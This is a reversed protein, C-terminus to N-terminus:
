ERADNADLQRRVQAPEHEGAYPLRFTAIKPAETRLLLEEPQSRAADRPEKLTIEALSLGKDPSEVIAFTGSNNGFDFCVTNM